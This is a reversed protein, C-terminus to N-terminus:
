KLIFVLGKKGFESEFCGCDPAASKAGFRFVRPNGDLDVSAEAYDLPDGKDICNRAQSTLHYDGKAANRFAVDENFCNHDETGGTVTAIPAICNRAVGKTMNLDSIAAVQTNTNGAVTCNYMNGGCLYVGGAADKTVDEGHSVDKTTTGCVLSNRLTGSALYVASAVNSVMTCNEAIAGAGNIYLAAGGCGGVNGYRWDTCGCGRIDCRRVTGGVMYVGGGLFGYRASRINRFQCDTVLGKDMYIGGGYGTGGGVSLASNCFLSNTITGGSVSACVGIKKSSGNSRQTLNSFCVDDVLGGLVDAGVPASFAGDRGFYTLGRVVSGEGVTMGAAVVKVNSADLRTLDRGAGLLECPNTLRIPQTLTYTGRAVHVIATVDAAMWVTAMADDLSRAAKAETEYPPVNGGDMAVFVETPRVNFASEKVAPTQEVGNVSVILKVDYTGCALGSFEVVSETEGTLEDQGLFWKYALSAGDPAGIVQATASPTSRYPWDEKTVMISCVIEGAKLELEYAGIDYAVGQPRAVGLVDVPVDDLTAGKNVAPSSSQLSFDLAEPDKLLPNVGLNGVGVAPLVNVINTNFTCGSAVTANAISGNGYIINNVATGAAMQLGSGECPSTNGYITCNFMTGNKIYVGAPWTSENSGTKHGTIVSNKLTGGNVYVGSLFNSVVMCRDAIVNGDLCFGCGGTGHVDSYQGSKAGNGKFYCDTISGGKAYIGGGRSGYHNMTNDVFQCGVVEGATMYVGAGYGGGGGNTMRNNQFLCNTITGAGTMTVGVGYVNGVATWNNSVVLDSLTGGTMNIVGAKGIDYGVASSLNCNCVTLSELRAQADAIKFVSLSLATGSIFTKDRGAGRITIGEKIDIASTPTYTGAALEIVDGENAAAVAAALDGGAPLSVTEAEAPCVLLAVAFLAASIAASLVSVHTKEMKAIREFINIFLIM